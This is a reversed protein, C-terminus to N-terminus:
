GGRPGSRMTTACSWTPPPRRKRGGRGASRLPRRRLTGISPYEVYPVTQWPSLAFGFSLLRKRTPETRLLVGLRYGVRAPRKAMGFTSGVDQLVHKVISRGNETVLTDLTNGAKLDTLNTWAGFVRLARLERRHEHPVIDNPDDPRTGAYRFGGLVKGTAAPRGRRPLHRGANRAGRRAGRRPRRRTFPTREGSPRRKTAKPISRRSAGSRVDHHVDRGPQLRAGLVAQDGDRRRGTAGEPHRRISRSSGPRATPTRATFGPNM